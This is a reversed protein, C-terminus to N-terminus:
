SNHNLRREVAIEMRFGVWGFAVGVWVMTPFKAMSSRSFPPAFAHVVMVGLVVCVVVVFLSFNRKVWGRM